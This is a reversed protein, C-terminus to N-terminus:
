YSNKDAEGKLILTLIQLGREGEGWTTSNVMNAITFYFYNNVAFTVYSNFNSLTLKRKLISWKKRVCRFPPDWKVSFFVQNGIVNGKNITKWCEKKSCNRFIQNGTILIQRYVNRSCNNFIIVVNVKKRCKQSCWKQDLARAKM